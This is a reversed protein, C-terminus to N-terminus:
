LGVKWNSKGFQSELGLPFTLYNGKNSRSLVFTFNCIKLKMVDRISLIEILFISCVKFVLKSFTHMEKWANPLGNWLYLSNSLVTM